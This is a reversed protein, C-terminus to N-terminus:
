SRRASSRGRCTQRTASRASRSRTATSWSAASPPRSRRGPLQRARQRVEAPAGAHSNDTIDNIGVIDIDAGQKKASRLFNRGIRGFGNIGVKVTM